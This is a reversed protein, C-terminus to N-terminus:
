RFFFVSKLDPNNERISVLRDFQFKSSIRKDVLGGDGFPSRQAHIMDGFMDQIFQISYFRTFLHYVCMWGENCCNEM